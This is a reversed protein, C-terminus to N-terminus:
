SVTSMGKKALPLTTVSQLYGIPTTSLKTIRRIVKSAVEGRMDKRNDDYKMLVEVSARLIGPRCARQRQDRRRAKAGM